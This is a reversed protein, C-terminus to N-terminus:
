YEEQAALVSDISHQLIHNACLFRGPTCACYTRVQRKCGPWTCVFQQYDATAGCVWNGGEFKSARKPAKQISHCVEGSAVLNQQDTEEIPHDPNDIFLWALQLRFAHYKPLATSLTGVFIFFKLVLYTNVETIALLFTFVRIAWRQTIWTEELAPCAHRLNNHDDVAHRYTFHWEYPLTYQFHTTTGNVRRSTQRCTDDSTLAGGTAMMRM